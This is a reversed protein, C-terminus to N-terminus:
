NLYKYFVVLDDGQRYFNKIVTQVKYGNKEYFTREGEYNKKGSTEILVLHGNEKKLEDEMFSVLKKGIGRGHVEADVAIWYLDYTGDTLPRRGFCVYGAAKGNEEYVYIKYHEDGTLHTDILEMAIKIEEDNFHKTDILIRKIEERDGEELKRIM